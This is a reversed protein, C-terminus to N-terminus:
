TIVTQVNSTSIQHNQKLTVGPSIWKCIYRPTLGYTGKLGTVNQFLDSDSFQKTSVGGLLRSHVFWKELGM